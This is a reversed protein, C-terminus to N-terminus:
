PRCGPLVAPNRGSTAGGVRKRGYRTQGQYTVATGYYYGHGPAPAPLTDPVTFYDGVSPPSSPYHCQLPQAQSFDIPHALNGAYTDFYDAAQFGEPMYPVRFQFADATPTYTQLIEFTTAFGEISAVWYQNGYNSSPPCGQCKGWLPIVLRGNKDDFSLVGYNTGPVNRITITDGPCRGDVYALVTETAGDWAILEVGSTGCSGGSRARVFLLRGRNDTEETSGQM